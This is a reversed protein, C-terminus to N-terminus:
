AAMDTLHRISSDKCQHLNKWTKILKWQLQLVCLFVTNFTISYHILHFYVFVFNFFLLQILYFKEYIRLPLLWNSNKIFILKLILICHHDKTCPLLRAILISFLVGGIYPSTFVKFNTSRIWLLCEHVLTYLLVKPFLLSFSISNFYHSNVRFLWTIFKHVKKVFFSCNQYM